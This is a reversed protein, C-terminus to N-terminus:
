ASYHIRSILSSVSIRDKYGYLPLKPPPIQATWLLEKDFRFPLPVHSLIRINDDHLRETDLYYKNRRTSAVYMPFSGGYDCKRDSLLTLLPVRGEDSSLYADAPIKLGLRKAVLALRKDTLVTLSRSISLIFTEHRSGSRISIRTGIPISAYLSQDGLKELVSTYEEERYEETGRLQTAVKFGLTRTAYELFHYRPQDDRLLNRMTLIEEDSLSELYDYFASQLPEFFTDGNPILIDSYYGEPVLYHDNRIMYSDSSLYHIIHERWRELDGKLSFSMSSNSISVFYALDGDQSFIFPPHM